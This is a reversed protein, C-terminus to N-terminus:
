IHGAAEWYMDGYLKLSTVSSLEFPFPLRHEAMDFLPHLWVQKGMILSQLEVSPAEPAPTPFITNWFSKPAESVAERASHQCPM